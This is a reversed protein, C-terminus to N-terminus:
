SFVTVTLAKEGPSIASGLPKKRLWFLARRRAGGGAMEGRRGGSGAGERWGGGGDAVHRVM